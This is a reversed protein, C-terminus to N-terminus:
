MKQAADHIRKLGVGERGWQRIINFVFLVLFVFLRNLPIGGGVMIKLEGFVFFMNETKVTNFLM